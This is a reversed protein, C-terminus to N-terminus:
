GLITALLLGRLSADVLEIRLGSRPARLYVFPTGYERGDMEVVMGEGVLRSTDRDLDETFYGTHDIRPAGATEWPSGPSGEILEIFPPGPRSYAVRITAGYTSEHPEVFELGLLRELEAIAPEIEAVVLGVHYYTGIAPRSPQEPRPM